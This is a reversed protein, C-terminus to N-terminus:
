GYAALPTLPHDNFTETETLRSKNQKAVFNVSTNDIAMANYANNCEPCFYWTCINYKNVIKFWASKEFYRNINLPKGARILSIYRFTILWIVLVADNVFLLFIKM